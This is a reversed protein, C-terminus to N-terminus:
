DRRPEEGPVSVGAVAFAHSVTEFEEATVGPRGCIVAERQQAAWSHWLRFAEDVSGGLAAAVAELGAGALVARHL